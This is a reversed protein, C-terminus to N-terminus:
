VRYLVLDHEISDVSAVQHLLNEIRQQQDPQLMGRHVLIYRANTWRLVERLDDAAAAEVTGSLVRLSPHRGYADFVSSPLRAIMGNLLPKGHVHQYFQLAEGGDGIR